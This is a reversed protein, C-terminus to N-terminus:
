QTNDGFSRTQLNAGNEGTRHSRAIPAIRWPAPRRPAFNTKFQGDQSTQAGEKQQAPFGVIVRSRPGAKGVAFRHFRLAQPTLGLKRVV